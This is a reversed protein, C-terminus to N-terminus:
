EGIFASGEDTYEVDWCYWGPGEHGDCFEVMMFEEEYPDFYEKALEIAEQKTLSMTEKM